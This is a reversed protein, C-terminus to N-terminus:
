QDKLLLDKAMEVLRRKDIKGINTRPLQDLVWVHRPIQYTAVNKIIFDKIKASNSICGPKLEVFAYPKYGKIDDPLGVIASMAVEPHREIIPEIESPYIKEGGSKFM